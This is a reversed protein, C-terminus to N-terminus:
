LAKRKRKGLVSYAGLGTIASKGPNARITKVLGSGTKGKNGLAKFFNGFGITKFNKLNTPNASLGRGISSVYKGASSIFGAEKVIRPMRKIENM